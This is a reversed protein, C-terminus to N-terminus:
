SSCISLQKTIRERESKRKIRKLTEQADSLVQRQPHCFCFSRKMLIPHNLKSIIYLHTFLNSKTTSHLLLFNNKYSAGAREKKIRTSSKVKVPCKGKDVFFFSRQLHSYSFLKSVWIVPVHTFLNSKTTTLKSNTRTKTNGPRWQGRTKKAPFMQFGHFCSCFLFEHLHKISKSRTM